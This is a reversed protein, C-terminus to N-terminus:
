RFLPAHKGLAVASCMVKFDITKEIGQVAFSTKLKILETKIKTNKKVVTQLNFL